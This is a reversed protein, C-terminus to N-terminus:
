KLIYGSVELRRFCREEVGQSERLEGHRLPDTELGSTGDVEVLDKGAM